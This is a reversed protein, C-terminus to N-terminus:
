IELLFRCMQLRRSCIVAASLFLLTKCRQLDDASFFFVNEKQLVSACFLAFCIRQPVTLQVFFITLRPTLATFPLSLHRTTANRFPTGQETFPQTRTTFSSIPTCGSWVCACMGREVLWETCCEGVLGSVRESGSMWGGGGAVWCQVRRQDVLSGVWGGVGCWWPCGCAGGWVCMRM